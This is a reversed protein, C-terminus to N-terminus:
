VQEKRKVLIKESATKGWIKYIEPGPHFGDTAMMKPDEILNQKIYDIDNTKILTQLNQDFESSLYGLYWRLPHPLAPFKGVPPFGSVVIQSVGFKDRLVNFIKQQTNLFVKLRMGSTVDNVGLSVVAVDFHQPDIKEIHKLTSKSTAGSKAIVQWHVDFHQSLTSVLNGSLSQQLTSVGVGAAASDGLVLLRLTPGQGQNGHRQCMPEPLKEINKQVIIGQPIIIPSLIMRVFFNAIM